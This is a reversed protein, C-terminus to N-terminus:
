AAQNQRQAMAAALQLDRAEKFSVLRKQGEDWLRLRLCSLSDRLTMRRVEALQPHDRMIEQLRYYPIVSSLHHVHHVGINATMWRLPQPLDYHSSGYLAADHRDWEPPTDWVTHEFQHQVYFLWVGITAALVVMPVQIAFFAKWGVLQAVGFALAFIGINTGMASVWAWRAAKFYGTPLRNRFLFVFAPGVGLMIFPNRYLRYLLKGRASLAEYERVTLTDIDGFGRNDLNGSSAHHMAHCHKWDAYPTFTFVGLFRGVWDNTSRSRFFSGHGCDHQILFIRVLFGSGAVLFPIAAWWAYTSAFWAAAWLAMFPLVTVAVEFVSRNLNPERYPALVKLWKRASGPSPRISTHEL